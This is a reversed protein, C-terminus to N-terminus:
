ATAETTVARGPPKANAFEPLRVQGTMLHHLLSAFLSALAARRSELAAIKADVAEHDRHRDPAGFACRSMLGPCRGPFEAALPPCARFPRFGREAASGGAYRMASHRGKLAPELTLPRHGLANGQAPSNEGRRPLGFSPLRLLWGQFIPNM